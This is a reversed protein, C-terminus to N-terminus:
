QPKLAVFTHQINTKNHFFQVSAFGANKLTKEMFASEYAVAAEPVGPNEIYANGLRHKYTNGKDVSTLDVCKCTMVLARGPMLVRMAEEFYNLMQEELLHTLVSTGFMLGQSSDDVPLRYKENKQKSLYASSAHSACHFTFRESDYNANCWSVMEPDIDIGTYKGSYRIDHFEFDRMWFTRRGIGSGIEVINDTFKVLGNALLYLWLDRGQVFFQSQNSFLRGGVGVRVRLSNPPLKRFEPFRLRPGIDTINLVTAMLPNGGAIGMFVTFRNKLAKVIGM